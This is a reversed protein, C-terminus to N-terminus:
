IMSIEELKIDNLCHKFIYKISLLYEFLKQKQQSKEKGLMENNYIISINKMEAIKKSFM